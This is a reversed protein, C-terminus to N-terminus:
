SQLGRWDAPEPRFESFHCDTTTGTREWTITAWLGDIEQIVGVDGEIAHVHLVKDMFNRESLEELALVRAGVMVHTQGM